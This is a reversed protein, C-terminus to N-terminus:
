RSGASPSLKAYQMYRESLHLYDAFLAEVADVQSAFEDLSMSISDDPRDPAMDWHLPVFCLRPEADIIRGPPKFDYKVGWRGHVYDNRLARVKDAREFWATFEALAEEGAPKFVDLVLQKFKRLRKCLQTQGPDLLEAVEVQYYPGLWNLQLGVNFDFRAHAHVLRGLLRHFEDEFDNRHQGQRTTKETVM